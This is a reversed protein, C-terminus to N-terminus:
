ILLSSSLHLDSKKDALNVEARLLRALKSSLTHAEALPLPLRRREELLEMVLSVATKLSFGHGVGVVLRGGTKAELIAEVEEGNVIRVMYEGRKELSGGRILSRRTVGISRTNAVVGLHSALGLKRPHNIGCGNVIIADFSAKKMAMLMPKLERFALLGPIYPVKIDCLACAAEVFRKEELDYVVLCALAKKWSPYGVDVGAVKYIEEGVDRVLVKSALLKQVRIAKAINLGKHVHPQHKSATM